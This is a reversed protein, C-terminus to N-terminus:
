LIPISLEELVTPSEHSCRGFHHSTDYRENIVDDDLNTKRKTFDVGLVGIFKGEITKIAFLIHGSKCGQKKRLM